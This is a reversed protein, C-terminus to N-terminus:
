AGASEGPFCLAARGEREQRPEFCLRSPVRM